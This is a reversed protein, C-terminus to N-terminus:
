FRVRLLGGAGGALVVPTLAMRREREAARRGLMYCSASGAAAAVAIGYSLRALLEARKGDAWRANFQSSTLSWQSELDDTIDRMQLSFYLGAVLAAASSTALVISGVRLSKSTPENRAPLPV